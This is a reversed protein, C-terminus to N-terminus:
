APLATQSPQSTSLLDLDPYVAPDAAASPRAGAVEAAVERLRASFAALSFPEAAAQVRSEDIGEIRLRRIATIVADVSPENIFYGTVGDQCTELYGGWALALVPTGFQFAEVPTLGFDEFSVALLATANAYLWRLQADTVHSLATVRSSGKAQEPDGGVMVLREGPLQEIASAVLDHNKYGRPRGVTLLYGPEIGEVPERPGEATLTVPPHLVEAEIGYNQYIRDRVNRSNALYRDATLARSRDWSRLSRTSERFATRLPGPWSDLYHDPQYLWRAPNHCYVVRACTDAIGHAWGSSSCVAVDADRVRLHEFASALLPLARRPDRRFAPVRNLWTTSINARAFDPFTSEPCYVSTYLGADPFAKLMALVVREAGGRQTLYDHVVAV